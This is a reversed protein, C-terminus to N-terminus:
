HYPSWRSRCEKGVRREESRQDQTGEHARPERVAPPKRDQAAEVDSSGGDRESLRDAAPPVEEVLLREPLRRVQRPLEVDRGWVAREAEALVLIEVRGEQVLREPVEHHEPEEDAHEARSEGAARAREEKGVDAEVRNAAERDFRKPEVAEPEAGVAHRLERAHEADDNGHRAHGPHATAGGREGGALGASM